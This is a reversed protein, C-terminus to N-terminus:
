RLRRLKLSACRNHCSWAIKLAKESMNPLKRLPNTLLFM